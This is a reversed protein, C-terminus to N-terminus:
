LKSATGGGPDGGGMNKTKEWIKGIKTQTAITRSVAGIAAGVLKFGALAVGIAVLMGKGEGMMDGWFNMWKTVIPRIVKLTANIGEVM